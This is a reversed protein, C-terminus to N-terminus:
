VSVSAILGYHESLWLGSKTTCGVGIREPRSVKVDPHFASSKTMFIRDRRAPTHVTRPQCGWTNGDPGYAGEGYADNLHVRTHIPADHETTMNMDGAVIGPAGAVTDLVASIELLQEARAPAGGPRSELHTNVLRIQLARARPDDPDRLYINAILANRCMRSNKFELSHALTQRASKAILTVNGFPAGKPWWETSEPIVTFHAQVWSTNIITSFADKVVEQLLICCPDLNGSPGPGLEKRLLDLISALRECANPSASDVNWTVLKTSPPANVVAFPLSM